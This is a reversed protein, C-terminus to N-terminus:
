VHTVERERTETESMPTIPQQRLAIRLEKILVSALLGARSLAPNASAQPEFRELIALVQAPSLSADATGACTTGERMATSPTYGNGSTPHVHSAPVDAWAHTLATQVPALGTNIQARLVGKIREATIDEGEQALHMVQEQQASTLRTIQRAVEQSIKGALIQTLIPGPLLAIKLREALSGRHFGFDALDDLTMGVGDDILRRLDEVEKIWAASRQENEILGLLASLQPTGSAYVECKVVVLGAMRAALIRRRGMIVEFTAEPDHPMSGSLLVVAPAQLIGVKKISKVLRASPRALLAAGPVTICELPLLMTEHSPLAPIGLRKLLDLLKEDVQEVEGALLSQQKPTRTMRHIMREQTFSTAYLGAEKGTESRAQQVSGTLVIILESDMQSAAANKPSAQLSTSYQKYVTTHVFKPTSSVPVTRLLFHFLSFRPIYM